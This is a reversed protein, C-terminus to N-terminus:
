QGPHDDEAEVTSVISQELKALLETLQSREKGSLGALLAAEADLHAEITRDIVELGEDTLSSYVVRRDIRDRERKILGAEELRDLRLTIGASSLLSGAALQTGTKRYPAGARRLSALVDFSASNLGYRSFTKNLVAQYRLYVRHVRGFLAIPSPDLDPRERIWQELITGVEDLTSAQGKQEGM